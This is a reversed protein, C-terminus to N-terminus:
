KLLRTLQRLQKEIQDLQENMQNVKINVEKRLEHLQRAILAINTEVYESNYELNVSHHHKGNKDQERWRVNNLYSYVERVNRVGSQHLEGALKMVYTRSIKNNNELLCFELLSNIVGNSFRYKEKLEYIIQIIPKPITQGGAYQSLLELPDLSELQQLHQEQESM